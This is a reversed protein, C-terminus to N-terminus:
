HASPNGSCLYTCDKCTILMFGAPQCVKELTCHKAEKCAQAFKEQEPTFTCKDPTTSQECYTTAGQQTYGSFDLSSPAAPLSVQRATKCQCLLLLALIGVNKRCM